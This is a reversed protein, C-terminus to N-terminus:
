QSDRVTECLTPLLQPFLLIAACIVNLRLSTARGIVACGTPDEGHRLWGNQTKPIRDFPIVFQVLRQVFPLTIRIGLSSSVRGLNLCASFSRFYPTRM